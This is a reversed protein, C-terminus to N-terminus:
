RIYTEWFDGRKTKEVKEVCIFKDNAGASWVHRWREKLGDGQINRWLIINICGTVVSSKDDPLAIFTHCFPPPKAITHGSFWDRAIQGRESYPDSKIHLSAHSSSSCRFRLQTFETNLRLRYLPSNRMYYNGQSKFNPLDEVQLEVVPFDEIRDSTPRVNLVRMWGGGDTKM